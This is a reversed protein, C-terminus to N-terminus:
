FTDTLDKPILKSSLWDLVRRRGNLDFDALIRCIRDMATLEPDKVVRGTQIEREIKESELVAEAM